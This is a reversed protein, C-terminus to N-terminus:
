SLRTAQEAGPRFGVTLMSVKFNQNNGSNYCRFTIRRGMGHLPMWITKEDLGGTVSGASGLVFAGAYNTDITQPFNITENFRGDIWVDVSLQYNGEEQFTVGLFDWHKNKHALSPDLHRMDLDATRFEGTYATGSGIAGVSRDEHDMLYVFGDSAGYIPKLINNMNRRLTLCDPALHTWIGYKPSDPQSIDLQILCDNNQRGKTRTTFLAIGKDSYFLSHQFQNGIPTTNELFFKSVKAQKFIDAQVFNGFAQTAKFSILKNTNTGILLDDLVQSAAHWGSIGMGDAYKAFYWNSASSDDDNLFYVLDGAKWVILKTKYVTAGIIDGGEGPGVNNILTTQSTFDEHSATTSAYAVSKAFAWLRGRHILGFNPFNSQPNSSITPNPWDAAPGSISAFTSNDGSCVKIQNLGGSFFFIKKDASATENGGVVFQSRNTLNGLGTAVAAGLNFNRDGYDRYIKGDSTAAFLRQKYTTPWYDLLAIIGASLASRNYQIAGPAKQVYGPAFDCNIVKTLATHPIQSPALDSMLGMIGIPIQAIQGEYGM